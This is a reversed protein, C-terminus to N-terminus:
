PTVEDDASNPDSLSRLFANCASAPLSCLDGKVKSSAAKPQIRRSPRAPFFDAPDAPAKGVEDVVLVRPERGILKRDPRQPAKRSPKARDLKEDEPCLRGPAPVDRREVLMGWAQERCGRLWRVRKENNTLDPPEDFGWEVAQPILEKLEGARLMELNNMLWERPLDEWTREDSTFLDAESM